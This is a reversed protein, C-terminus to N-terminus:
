YQRSIATRVSNFPAGGNSVSRYAKWDVNPLYDFTLLKSTLESGLNAIMAKRMDLPLTTQLKDQASRPTRHVRINESKVGEWDGNVHTLSLEVFQGDFNELLVRSWSRWYSSYHFLM